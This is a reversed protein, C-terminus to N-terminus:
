QLHLEKRRSAMARTRAERAERAQRYQNRLNDMAYDYAMTDTVERMSYFWASELAAAQAKFQNSTM